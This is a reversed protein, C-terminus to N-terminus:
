LTFKSYYPVLITKVRQDNFYNRELLKDIFDIDKLSLSLDWIHYVINKDIYDELYDKVFPYLRCDFSVAKVEQKKIQKAIERAKKHLHQDIGEKLLKFLNKAPLYYSTHYGEGAIESFVHSTISSELIIKRKFDFTKDLECLKEKVELINGQNLNKVDLWVKQVKSMNLKTLFDHLKIGSKSKGDHGIEFYDGGEKNYMVDVEFSYYGDYLVNYLKGISNVRHPIVKSLLGMSELQHINRKQLYNFNKRGVYPRSSRTGGLVYCQNDDVQYLKNSLDYKPNYRNTQVGVIGILTDYILDNPFLENEHEVLANFKNKYKETYEESCWAIMPIQTMSYTFKSSNHGRKGLVDDAHDAFYIFGSVGGSKKLVELISTVVYDNYLVSNDYDNIHKALDVDKAKKGFYGERLEGNYKSYKVPYRSCYNFHNGMLHVFIVTNNNDHKDIINKVVAITAGDLNQTKTTKGVHKNLAILKNATHAVISVLNDWQGYVLQNTVWYIDFGASELINVISPSNFYDKKNLQNAETLSLSLVHNTYTHISYANDYKIINEEEYLRSLHPTTKRHYGYLGMHNKNLSEGIVIIYLEGKGDKQAKYEIKGTNIKQQIEKFKSLEEKYTKVSRAIYAITRLDSRNVISGATFVIVLMLLLSVEINIPRQKEQKYLALSLMLISFFVLMLWKPAIFCDLFQIAESFNTQFIAYFIVRTIKINFIIYYLIYILPISYLISSLLFVIIPALTKIRKSLMQYFLVFLFAFGMALITYAVAIRININGFTIKDAIVYLWFIIFANIAIITYRKGRLFAFFTSWLLTILILKTFNYGLVRVSMCFCLFVFSLIIINSKSRLKNLV